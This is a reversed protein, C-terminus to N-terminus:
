AAVLSRKPQQQFQGRMKIEGSSLPRPVVAMRNVLYGLRYPTQSRENAAIVKTDSECSPNVALRWSCDHCPVCERFEETGTIEQIRKESPPGFVALALFLVRGGTQMFLEKSDDDQTMEACSKPDRKKASGNSSIQTVLSLQPGEEGPQIENEVVLLGGAGFKTYGDYHPSQLSALRAVEVLSDITSNANAIAHFDNTRELERNLEATFSAEFGGQIIM